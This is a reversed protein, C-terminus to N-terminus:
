SLELEFNEIPSKQKANKLALAIQEAIKTVVPVVVSNGMQRYMQTRSVPVVFNEPFGMIAKCENTTLLRIGTEGDKVFTGTLRQIKHYTSVLTKIAGTSNKDVLTPRGDDVKFLYTKQLHESISYGTVDQELVEGIDKSIMPPKPFEFQIKQDLFAVLYFRKRKQPIGFHSADLVTHHVKYGMTQLTEIIIQLTNGDDHNILGPVNELFLVPTKKDKIIRVIEYFMTGQTPHEFGERKGIHSFPQCPFGACLIDHKPISDVSIKTIDGFPVDGFNTYYTFKAFPDIESSFICKGGHNEFSQRIGGIGAFLDIFTFEGSYIGQYVDRHTIIALDEASKTIQAQNYDSFIKKNKLLKDTIKVDPFSLENKVKQELLRAFAIHMPNTGNECAQWTKSCDNLLDAMQKQTMQLRNRLAKLTKPKM